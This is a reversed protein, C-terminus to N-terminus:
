QLSSFSMTKSDICTDSMDGVVRPPPSPPQEVEVSVAEDRADDVDNPPPPADGVVADPSFLVALFLFCTAGGCGGRGGLFRPKEETAFATLM